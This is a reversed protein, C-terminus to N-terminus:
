EKDGPDSYDKETIKKMLKELEDRYKKALILMEKDAIGNIGIEVEAWRYGNKKVDQLTFVTYVAVVPLKSRKLMKKHNNWHKLSTPSLAFIFPKIGDEKHVLMWLRIKPKCKGNGIIAEHCGQCSDNEPSDVIPRNDIASCRPLSEGEEWLARINQEVFVVGEIRNGKIPKEQVDDDLYSEGYDIYMCHKGNSKHEIRIRPLDIGNSTTEIQMLEEDLDFGAESLSQALADIKTIEM